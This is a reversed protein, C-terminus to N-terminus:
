NILTPPGDSLRGPGRGYDSAPGRLAPAPEDYGRPVRLILAFLILGALFGIPAATLGAITRAILPATWVSALLSIEYDRFHAESRAAVFFALSPALLMLDYDLIHPSALPTAALLLAAKVDLHQNSRWVWAAGSVVVASIAGQVMYALTVSGGWM